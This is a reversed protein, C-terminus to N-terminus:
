HSDKKKQGKHPGCPNSFYKQSAAPWWSSLEPWHKKNVSRRCFLVDSSTISIELCSAKKFFAARIIRKSNFAFGQSHVLRRKTFSFGEASEQPAAVIEPRAAWRQASSWPMSIYKAQRRHLVSFVGVKKPVKYYNCDTKEGVITFIYEKPIIKLPRFALNWSQDM